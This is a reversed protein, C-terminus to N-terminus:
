IEKVAYLTQIAGADELGLVATMVARFHEESSDDPIVAAVGLCRAEIEQQQNGSEIIAITPMQPKVARLKKLFVGNPMDTLHWHSIVSDIQETKFSRVAQSGTKLTILRVPLGELAEIRSGAGVALINMKAIIVM